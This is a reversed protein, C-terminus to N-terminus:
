GKEIRKIIKRTINAYKKQNYASAIREIAELNRILNDLWSFIDGPYTQIQYHKLLKRSIDTPDKRKLRENIIFKSIGISLCNCFPKEECECRLFDVQIKLLAEQFKKDLKDITEGSSIIDLTSDSFLRTSFNTKLANVIQKHVSPAIYANEYYGLDIAINIIENNIEINVNNKNKKNNNKNNNKENKNKNNKNENKNKFSENDKKILNESIKKDINNLNKNEKNNKKLKIIKNNQKKLIKSLKNLSKKIFEGNEISLFSMSVAKGYKTPMIKENIFKENNSKILKKDNLKNLKIDNLKNLKIKKKSNLENMKILKKDYLENIAMEINIPIQINKYFDNIDKTNNLSYSCVDALLQELLDSENYDIHVKEVDSELLSIAMSEESENDFKNSIEPLLYVVGRDHYTPRGARGIMQSFENASIWKNGMILTEFIVQSAPFDVGAALAATTVVASIKGNAFDKEIREKKFYSLGGHYAASKIRKRTLYDSIQHTKRRSNTFVITQGSFGKSSKHNFEKIILKRILNRKEIDSKVFVLHRELPVPRQDYEVLDMKFENSLQKPNKITASLGIIQANPYIKEIRKIMGNLRIGRDEDDLTHIEDILVTGLEKLASSNGSRLLFDIGEYTGVIIDSDTLNSEPFKIEEKAKVRNMGVKISVKLGLPEYKKKFDRYKQNALAVLPTLFIFKKGNLAKPIGALEGVLTKGSATASVVLLSKDKMLGKKISLYQIPLLYNNDDKDLVKKFKNPIKLRKIPIKPIKSKKVTIKDFLTLNTNALPDFKHDIIKLVENLNGTKNLIRKFNKYTKKDYGQLKLERKITDEACTKCILQNHYDYSFNSNIITIYGEYACHSCIKTFRTQIGHSTLFEEIKQDKSVLFVVQKKLLKMAESPPLLKEEDQPYKAIFKNISLGNPTEKFKIIGIFDPTRRTNLAGKPSGIPYLEWSRKAKKLIIM